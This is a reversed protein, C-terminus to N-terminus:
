HAKGSAQIIAELCDMAQRETQKDPQKAGYRVAEFLRTLRDVPEGPLGLEILSSQFERATMSQKRRVGRQRELAQAMEYYCRLIVDRFDEGAQLAQHASRAEQIFLELADKPPKRRRQWARWLIGVLLSVLLFSALFAFWEPVYAPPVAPLIPATMAPADAAELPSLTFQSKRLQKSIIMIAITWLLAQILVAWLSHRKRPLPPMAPAKRKSNLYWGFVLIILIIILALLPDRYIAFQALLAMIENVAQATFLEGSRLELLPLAAALAIITLLATGLALSIWVRYKTM